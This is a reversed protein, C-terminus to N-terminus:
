NIMTIGGKVMLMADGNVQTMLGKVETQVQGEIKVMMGKITVGMQDVKISSQGVKLEIGQMAEYSVKGLDLKTELNGMSLKVTRNGMKITLEQNGMDLTVKQNGMKLQVIQDQQITTQQKGQSVEIIQNGQGVTILQDGQDVKIEQKGQKVQVTQDGKEITHTDKGEKVTRVDDNQIDTTRNHGVGRTEDNEVAVTLDKEAHVSFFEDGKKDEILVENFNDTGGEKSSRTKLGWRTQNTPLDYPVMMEDNYVSGTVLPRDPDGELFEVVVEQGMRPIAIAGWAKGAWSTAVRVWCSSLEDKNGYRDWHFQVKIRGYKDVWIEEGSKGVVVATQTGPIIPKRTRREPVYPTTNPIAVFDIVYPAPAEAGDLGPQAVPVGAVSGRVKTSLVTYDKNVDSAYHEALTLKMGAHLWRCDTLGYLVEETAEMEELRMRALRDGDDKETYKGPYDFYKEKASGASNVTLDVKPKTFDYDRLDVVGTHAGFERRVSLIVEEDPVLQSTVRLPKPSPLIASNSDALVLNSSGGKHDFFYYIGEEEMLRTLFDLHSERYQVCYERKPHSKNLKDDVETIGFEDFVAKIIEPVTKEQYIRCDSSLSLFWILPVMEAYYTTFSKDRGGQVFRRIYGHVHRDGEDTKLKISVPSRLLSKLDAIASPALLELRYVFPSSMAQEAEVGALLFADAGATTTVEFPRDEQTYTTIEPSM